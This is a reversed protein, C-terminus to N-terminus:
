YASKMTKTNAPLDFITNDVKMEKVEIAVSELTFQGNDIISKLPLSNSKSLFDYWNGFKHNEYLKTNVSFKTNFYYKQIGSKCTLVLEDCKYGLVEAVGKNVEAKLVKDSNAAGDNWLLIESNAMKSYLKNEKNVYLQWQFFSGNAVSKYNGNKIFYEQVSGMMTTFQEDTVNPIKSRYTNKYVIKGEFTQGFSTIAFLTVLLFIFIRTM